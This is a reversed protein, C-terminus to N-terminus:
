IDVERNIKNEKKSPLRKFVRTALFYNTTRLRVRAFWLPVYKYGWCGRLFTELPLAPQYHLTYQSNFSRSTSSSTRVIPPQRMCVPMSDFHFNDSRILVGRFVFYEKVVSRRPLQEKGTSTRHGVFLLSWDFSNSTIVIEYCVLYGKVVSRLYLSVIHYCSYPLNLENTSPTNPWYKM